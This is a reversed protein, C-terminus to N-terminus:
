NFGAIVKSFIYAIKNQFSYGGVFSFSFYAVLAGAIIITAAGTRSAYSVGFAIVAAFLGVVGPNGVNMAVLFTVAAAWAILAALSCVTQELSMSQKNM